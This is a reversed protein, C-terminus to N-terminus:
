DLLGGGASFGAGGLLGAAGIKQVSKGIQSGILGRVGTLPVHTDDAAAVRAIEWIKRAATGRPPGDLGYGGSDRSQRMRNMLSRVNIDGTNSVVGPKRVMTLLQWQSRAKQWKEVLEKKGRAKTVREVVSDLKDLAARLTEGSGIDGKAYLDAMAASIQQRDRMVEKGSLVGGREESRKIADNVIKQGMSKGFLGAEQTIGELARAVDSAGIPPLDREVSRFLSASAEEADALSSIPISTIKEPNPLGLGEAVSQSMLKQNSAKIAQERLDGLPTMQEVSAYLRTPSGERTGAGLPSRYGHSEAQARESGSAVADIEAGADETRQLIQNEAAFAPDIPAGAAGVSGPQGPQAPAGVPAEVPAAGATEGAAAREAQRNARIAQEGGEVGRAVRQTTADLIGRGVKLGSIVGKAAVGGALNLGASELAGLMRDEFTGPRLATVAGGALSEIGLAPLFGLGGTAAAAGVSALAEPAFEGIRAAIPAGAQAAQSRAELAAVDGEVPAGALEGIGLRLSEAGRGAGRALSAATGGIGGKLEAVSVPVWEGRSHSFGWTYEAGEPAPQIDTVDAM